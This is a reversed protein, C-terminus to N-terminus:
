EYGTMEKFKKMMTEVIDKDEYRDYAVHIKDLRIKKLLSINDENM